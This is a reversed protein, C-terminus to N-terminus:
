DNLQEPDVAYFLAKIKEGLESIAALTESADLGTTQEIKLREELERKRNSLQCLTTTM